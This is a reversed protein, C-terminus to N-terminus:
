SSEAVAEKEESYNLVHVFHEFPFIERNYPHDVDNLQIVHKEMNMDHRIVGKGSLMGDTIFVLANPPTFYLANVLHFSESYSSGGGGYSLTVDLIEDIKNVDKATITQISQHHVFNDFAWLTVKFSGSAALSAVLQKVTDRIIPSLKNHTSGSTDIALAIETVSHPSKKQFTPITIPNYKM